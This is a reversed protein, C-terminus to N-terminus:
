NTIATTISGISQNITTYKWGQYYHQQTSPDVLIDQTRNTLSLVQTRWYKLFLQHWGDDFTSSMFEVSNIYNHFIHLWDRRTRNVNYYDKIELVPLDDFMKQTGGPLAPVVPIVGLLLLEYTRYCDWGVGEPSFGFMYRSAAVYNEHVPDYQRPDLSTPRYSTTANNNDVNCSLDDMKNKNTNNTNNNYGSCLRDYLPRRINEVRKIGHNMGFRIYATNYFIDDVVVVDAAATATDNNINNMM